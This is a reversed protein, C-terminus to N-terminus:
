TAGPVSADEASNLLGTGGVATTERRPESETRVGVDSIRVRHVVWGASALRQRAADTSMLLLWASGRGAGGLPKGVVAGERVLTWVPTEEIGARIVPHLRRQRDLVALLLAALDSRAPQATALLDSIQDGLAVLGALAGVTDAEGARYRDAVLQVLRDSGVRRDAPPPVALVADRLVSGAHGLRHVDVGHDHFSYSTFGGFTAAFQDQLGGHHGCLREVAAAVHPVSSLSIGMDDLALLAATAATMVTGSSGTGSGMPLPITADLHAPIGLLLLLKGLLRELGTRGRGPEFRPADVVPGRSDVMRISYGGQSRTARVAVRHDLAASVMRAPRSRLFPECDTFGGTLDARLPATAVAVRIM